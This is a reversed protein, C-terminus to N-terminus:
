RVDLLQAVFHEPELHEHLSKLRFELRLMLIAGREFGMELSKLFSLLRGNKWM